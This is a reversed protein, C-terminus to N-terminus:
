YFLFLLIKKKGCQTQNNPDLFKNNGCSCVHKDEKAECTLPKPCLGDEPIAEDRSNIRTCLGYEYIKEM